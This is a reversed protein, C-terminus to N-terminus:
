VTVNFVVGCQVDINWKRLRWIKLTREYAPPLEPHAAEYERLAQVFAKLPMEADKKLTCRDRVFAPLADYEPMTSEGGGAIKLGHVRSGAIKLGLDELARKLGIVLTRFHLLTTPEDTWELFRKHVDCMKVSDDENDTLTVAHPDAFFAIIYNAPHENLLMHARPDSLQTRLAVRFNDYIDDVTTVVAEVETDTVVAEAHSVM